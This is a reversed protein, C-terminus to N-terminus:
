RDRENAERSSDEVAYDRSFEFHSQAIALAIGQAFANNFAERREKDGPLDAAGGILRDYREDRFAGASMSAGALWSEAAYRGAREFLPHSESQRNQFLSQVSRAPIHRM